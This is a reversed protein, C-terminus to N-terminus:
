RRSLSEPISTICNGPWLAQSCITYIETQNQVGWFWSNLPLPLSRDWNMLWSSHNWGEDMKKKKQNEESGWHISHHGGVCPLAGQSLWNVLEFTLRRCFCGGLSVLFYHKVMQPDRINVWLILRWAHMSQQKLWTWSKAVSHVTAWWAERDTLNELCFVSTSQWARRWPIKGVWPDFGHRKHRRFQSAPEKGSAGSSFGEEAWLICKISWISYPWQLFWIFYYVHSISLVHWNGEKFDKWQAM